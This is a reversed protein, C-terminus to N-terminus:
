IMVNKEIMWQHGFPDLINGQRYGYEYDQVPSIITAGATVAQMVLADPDNVLLGIVVTTGNLTQPSLQNKRQTEQHMRFLAKEIAMEAVHVEGDPNSMSRLVIAGFALQYFPIATNLSKLYLMPAMATHPTDQLHLDM